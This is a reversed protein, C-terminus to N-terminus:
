KTLDQQAQLNVHSGGGVEPHKYLSQVNQDRETPGELLLYLSAPEIEYSPTPLVYIIAVTIADESTLTYHYRVEVYDRSM